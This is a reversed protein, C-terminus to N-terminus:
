AFFVGDQINFGASTFMDTWLGEDTSFAFDPRPEDPHRHSHIPGGQAHPASHGQIPTADNPRPPCVALISDSAAPGSAPAIDSHVLDRDRRREAHKMVIRELFRAQLWCSSGPPSSQGSFTDASLQISDCVQPEIRSTIYEPTSLLLQILFAASYATMVHISDAVVSQLWKREWEEIRVEIISLLPEFSHLQHGGVKAPKPGLLTFVESSLLRLAVIAGLFNDSAVAMPDKCWPEISEIFADREIMWPKGTQLSMSRDYVFLIFWLRQINRVERKQIGSSHGGQDVTYPRLRHWGLEIGMRIVYGLSVWARSDDPEKWYTMILVAQAIETSTRGLRFNEAFLEEVQNHLKPYLEPHLAKAAAALMATLLFPCKQRVYDFTHLAPDMQSIYPNLSNMFNEFLSQAIRMNVIGLKIPDDPTIVSEQPPQMSFPPELISQLSFRGHTAAHNLISPPQLNGTQWNRCGDARQPERVDDETSQNTGTPNQERMPRGANPKSIRFGPKRGRHHEQFVCHLSKRICRECRSGTGGVQCKM